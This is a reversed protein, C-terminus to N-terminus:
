RRRNRYDADDPGQAQAAPDEDASFVVDTPATPPRRDREQIPHSPPLYTVPDSQSPYGSACLDDPPEAPQFSESRPLPVRYLPDSAQEHMVLPVDDSALHHYGNGDLDVEVEDSILRGHADLPIPSDITRRYKHYTFLAIGCVTIAVGTINLPTLEDGFFWASFSITAVEKAIGAISMPIVGTRQIISYESLVMGFALTGPLFLLFLTRLSTSMGDFFPGDLLTSWSDLFISVLGVTLGMIPSLWFIAAAPNDMGVKKDRMLLQTLAWRLGGLASASLVLILGSLVFHTETAVMLLVGSFILFIVGILRFSFAELRFLFAFLLVFILSSSKCMTYFSLTITRLSLNSLGIDLGTTVATPVAKRGYDSRSPTHQPHFTKPWGFRLVAALIFQVFMHLMTVFLPFPFGFHEPSFMWKNYLSLVLAFVFWSGMFLANVMANRWWLRKKEAVSALHQDQGPYDLEDDLEEVGVGDGSGNRDAM